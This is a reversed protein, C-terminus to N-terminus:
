SAANGNSLEHSRQFQVLDSYLLEATDCVDETDPPLGPQRPFNRLKSLVDLLGFEIAATGFMEVVNHDDDVLLDRMNVVAESLYNGDQKTSEAATKLNTMLKDFGGLNRLMMGAGTVNICINILSTEASARIHGEPLKLADVLTAVLGREYMLECNPMNDTSLFSLGLFAAQRRDEHPSTVLGILKDLGGADRIAHRMNAGM